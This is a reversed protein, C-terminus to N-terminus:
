LKLEVIGCHDDESEAGIVSGGAPTPPLKASPLLDIALCAQQPKLRAIDRPWM